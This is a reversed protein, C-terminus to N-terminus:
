DNIGYMKKLHILTEHFLFEVNEMNENQIFDNNEKINRKLLRYYELPIGRKVFEKKNLTLVFKNNKVVVFDVIVEGIKRKLAVQETTLVSDPMLHVLQENLPSKYVVKQACSLLLLVSFLLLYYNSKKEMIEYKGNM